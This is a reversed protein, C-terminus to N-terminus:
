EFLNCPEDILIKGDAYDYKFRLNVNAAEPPVLYYLTLKCANGAKFSDTYYVYYYQEGTFGSDENYLSAYKVLAESAEKVDKQDGVDPVDGFGSLTLSVEVGKHDPHEALHKITGFAGNPANGTYDVFTSEGGPGACGSLILLVALLPLIATLPKKM